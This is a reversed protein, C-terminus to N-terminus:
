LDGIIEIKWLMDQPEPFGAEGLDFRHLAAAAAAVIPRVVDFQELSNARQKIILAVRDLADLFQELL